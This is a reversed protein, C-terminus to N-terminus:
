LDDLPSKARPRPAAIRRLQQDDVPAETLEPDRLGDQGSEAEVLERHHSEGLLAHRAVRQRALDLAPRVTDEEGPPLVRHEQARVRRREEEQLADAVLRMAERVGIM